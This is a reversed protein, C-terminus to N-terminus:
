AGGGTRPGPRDSRRGGEARRRDPPGLRTPQDRNAHRARRAVPTAQFAAVLRAV